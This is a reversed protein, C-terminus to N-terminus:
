SIGLSQDRGPPHLKGRCPLDGPRDRDPARWTNPVARGSCCRHGVVEEDGRRTYAVVSIAAILLGLVICEILMDWFEGPTFIKEFQFADKWFNSVREEM